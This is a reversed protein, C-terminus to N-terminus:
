KAECSTFLPRLQPDKTVLPRVRDSMDLKAAGTIASLIEVTRILQRKLETKTPNGSPFDDDDEINLWAIMAMKIVQNCYTPVRPWCTQLVAQLLLTASLLTPPHKTGFPDFLIESIMPVIDKLYKVSIIGMGDLLRSLTQCLFNVLRVHQKTHHYGTMIGERVIKDLLKQQAETFGKAQLDNINESWGGKEINEDEPSTVSPDVGGLGAM